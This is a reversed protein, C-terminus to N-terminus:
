LAGIERKSSCCTASGAPTAALYPTPDADFRRKCGASCFFYTKGDYRTSGSSNNPDVNMGCVPDQATVQSNQTKTNCCCM